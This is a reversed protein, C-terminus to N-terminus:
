AESMPSLSASSICKTIDEIDTLLSDQEIALEDKQMLYKVLDENLIEIQSLFYNLVVQLQAINMETLIRRNLKRGGNKLRSFAASGETLRLLKILHFAVDRNKRDNIIAQRASHQAAKLKMRAESQIDALQEFFEVDSQLLSVKHKAEKDAESHESETEFAEQPSFNAFLPNQQVQENDCLFDESCVLNEVSNIPIIVHEKRRSINAKALASNSPLELDTKTKPSGNGSGGSLSGDESSPIDNMFCVLLNNEPLNSLAAGSECKGGSINTDALKRRIRERNLDERSEADEEGSDDSDLGTDNRNLQHLFASRQWGARNTVGAAGNETLRTSEDRLSKEWGESMPSIAM